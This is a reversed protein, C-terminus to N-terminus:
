CHCIYHLLLMSKVTISVCCFICDFWIFLGRWIIASGDVTIWHSNANVTLYIMYIILATFTVLTSVCRIHCMTGLSDSNSILAAVTAWPSQWGLSLCSISFLSMFLHNLPPFSAKFLYHSKYFFLYIFLYLLQLHSFYKINQCSSLHSKTFTHETPFCLMYFWLLNPRVGCLHWAWLQFMVSSSVSGAGLEQNKQGEPQLKAWKHQIKM